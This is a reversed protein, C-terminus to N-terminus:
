VKMDAIGMEENEEATREYDESEMNPDPDPAYVNQIYSAALPDEMLITFQMKGALAKDIKAFFEQWKQKKEPDMSDSQGTYVKSYLGDRVERLIGEITSFRGGLTGSTIDLGLEPVELACSESKLIDRNLDAPDTCRLVTRKGKAPIKGGTKVENSKYGCRHCVTSMIIVDKFYPITVTKMHTDCPGNCSPCTSKFVQIEAEPHDPDVATTAIDQQDQQNAVNSQKAVSHEAVSGQKAVDKVTEKGAEKAAKADARNQAVQEKTLLGLAVNQAPTRVYQTSSWKHQPEGPKYELWSNGAPDDVVLTVPLTGPECRLTRRVKQIFKVINAYVDPHATKRRPQDMELNEVMETLLGEVTTFQGREAPIEVDLEVFKCSCTNSKVVERDFDEKTEVKLEYRTGKEQIESAPQVECNKFGCHPCLFSMLVVDKFYPISTLLLRTTGQKGCRMCLSEIEQVPNGDADEATTQKLGAQTVHEAIEGVPKFIKDKESDQNSM